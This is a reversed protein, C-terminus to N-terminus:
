NSSLRPRKRALSMQALAKFADAVLNPHSNILLTWGATDMVEAAHSYPPLSPQSPPLPPLSPSLSPSPSSSPLPLSLLCPPLSPPLSLSSSGSPSLSPSLSLSRNIFEISIAKLQEASHLDALILTDAANEVSLSNCLSEECM